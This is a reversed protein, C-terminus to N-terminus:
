DQELAWQIPTQGHEVLIQNCKSFHKCGFFGRHASLPSPHPAKLIHHKSDILSSKKQAYAGWLLFVVSHDLQNLSQIISDTVKEWGRNAHSGAQGDEVTLVANLLLVGQKAWHSLDGHRPMECGLDQEIEKYINRLSPPLPIEKNVSFCLGNAQNPGHYPDQGLIVVKVQDFPTSNLAQFVKKKAPYITKGNARETQVFQTIEQYFSERKLGQLAQQWNQPTAM